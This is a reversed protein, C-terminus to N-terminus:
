QDEEIENIFDKLEHLIKETNHIVRFTLGNVFMALILLSWTALMLASLRAGIIILVVGLALSTTFCSISLIRSIM